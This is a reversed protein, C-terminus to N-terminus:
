THDEFLPEFAEPEPIELSVEVRNRGKRKAQYMASDAAAVLFEPDSDATGLTAGLSLTLNASTIGLDVAEDSVASRIREALKRTLELDCGPAIILFEEGGYRGILDYARLTASIRQVVTVLAADGAGHGYRDNIRKFHDLDALMVGLSQKDRRCRALERRLVDRIARRNLVGTLWDHEAHFRMSEQAQLLELKAKQVATLMANITGALESLEDKGQEDLRLSLDGSVTIQKVKRNLAEVRAILRDDLVFVLVASHVLGALMLLLLLYRMVKEREPKLDSPIRAVLLRRTTGSLDRLPVYALMTSDSEISVSNGGDNWLTPHGSALPANDAPELWLPLGLSRSATNILNETLMRGMILMGRPTGDGRSTTVPECALLILRKNVEVLGHLPAHQAFAPNSIYAAAIAAAGADGLSLGVEKHLILDGDPNLLIFINTGLINFTDESLETRVYEPNRTRMFDYTRDWQAYDRANTILQNEEDEFHNEIRRVNEHAYNSELRSFGSLLAIRSALYVAALFASLALVSYLLIRKRITM